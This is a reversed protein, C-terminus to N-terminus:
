WDIQQTTTDSVLRTLMRLLWNHQSERFERDAVQARLTANRTGRHFEVERLSLYSFDVDVLGRAGFEGWVDVTSLYKVYINRKRNREVTFKLIKYIRLNKANQCVGQEFSGMGEGYNLPVIMEDSDFLVTYIAASLDPRWEVEIDTIRSPVENNPYTASTILLKRAPAVELTIRRDALTRHRAMWYLMGFFQELKSINESEESFMRRIEAEFEPDFREVLFRGEKTKQERIGALILEPKISRARVQSIRREPCDEKRTIRTGAFGIESPLVSLLIGLILRM